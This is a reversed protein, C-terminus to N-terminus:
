TAAVRRGCVLARARSQFVKGWVTVLAFPSPSAVVPASLSQGLLPVKIEDRPSACKTDQLRRRM